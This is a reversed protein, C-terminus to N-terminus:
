REKNIINRLLKMPHSRLSFKLSNYDKILENGITMSPLKTLQKM